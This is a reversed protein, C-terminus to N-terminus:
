RAQGNRGSEVPGGNSWTPGEGEVLRALTCSGPVRRPHRARRARGPRQLARQAKPRTTTVGHRLRARSQRLEDGPLALVVGSSLAQPPNTSTPSLHHIAISGMQVQTKIPLQVM